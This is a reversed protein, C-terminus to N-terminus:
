HPRLLERPDTNLALALRLLVSLSINVARTELRALYTRHINAQESLQQQSLNQSHRLRRINFAVMKLAKCDYETSSDEVLLCGQCGECISQPVGVRLM